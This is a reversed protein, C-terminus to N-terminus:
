RLSAIYAVLDGIERRTLGPDAMLPHPDALIAELPQLDSGAEEAIARFTLVDASASTQQPSVVHCAASLSGGTARRTGTRKPMPQGPYLSAAFCRSLSGELALHNLHEALAAAFGDEASRGSDPEASGQRHRAGSGPNKAVIDPDDCAVLDVHPEAGRNRFLTLTAGGAVAVITGNPLIM